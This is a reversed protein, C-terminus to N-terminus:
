IKENKGMKLIEDCYPKRASGKWIELVGPGFGNWLKKKLRYPETEFGKAEVFISEGDPKVCQFDVRWKIGCVLDVRPQKIIEVFEGALVRLKLIEHVANELKSDFGNQKIAKFKNKLKFM